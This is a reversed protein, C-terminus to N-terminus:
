SFLLYTLTAVVTTILTGWAMDVYTVRAPWDKLTSQNTLDYTAYMCLGLLAGHGIVYQLSHQHLAPDIAFVVMGVIYLAYFVVAPKLDAKNSLLHGLQKKYFKSAVLTLWVADIAVFILTASFFHKLFEM